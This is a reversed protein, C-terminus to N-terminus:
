EQAFGLCDRDPIRRSPLKGSLPTGWHMELKQPNHSQHTFPRTAATGAAEVPPSREERTEHEQIWGQWRDHEAGGGNM